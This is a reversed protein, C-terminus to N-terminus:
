TEHACDCNELRQHFSRWHTLFYKLRRTQIDLKTSVSSCHLGTLIYSKTLPTVRKTKGPGYFRKGKTVDFVKGNVAVLVRGDPGTGSGLEALKKLNFDQKKMPAM